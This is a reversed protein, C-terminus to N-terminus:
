TEFSLQLDYNASWQRLQAAALETAVGIVVSKNLNHFHRAVTATLTFTHYINVSSGSIILHM